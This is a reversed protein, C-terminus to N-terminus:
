HAAAFEALMYAVIVLAVINAQLRQATPLWLLFPLM